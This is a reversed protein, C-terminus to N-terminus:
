KGFHSFWNVNGDVIILNGTEGCGLKNNSTNRIISMETCIFPM